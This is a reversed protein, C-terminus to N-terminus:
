FIHILVEDDKVEPTPVEKEELKKTVTLVLAQMNKGRNKMFLTVWKFAFTLVKM